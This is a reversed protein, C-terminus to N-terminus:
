AFLRFILAGFGLDLLSVIGIIILVFVLVVVFYNALQSGTPYVVKRLEGVAERVFQAPTTRKPRDARNQRPTAETKKQRAAAANRSKSDGTGGETRSRVPAGAGVLEREQDDDQDDDDFQGEFETLEVPQEDEGPTPDSETTAGDPDYAEFEGSRADTPDGSTPESEDTSERDKDDAM